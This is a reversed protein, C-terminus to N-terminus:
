VEQSSCCRVCNRLAQLWLALEDPSGHHTRLELTGGDKMAIVLTIDDVEEGSNNRTRHGEVSIVEFLDLSGWMSGDDSHLRLLAVGRQGLASEDEDCKLGITTKMRHLMPPTVAHTQTQTQKQKWWAAENHQCLNTLSAFVKTFGHAIPIRGIEVSKSSRTRFLSSVKNKSWIAKMRQQLEEGSGRRKHQRGRRRVM